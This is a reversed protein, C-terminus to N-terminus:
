STKRTVRRVDRLCRTRGSRTPLKRCAANAKRIIDTICSRAARGTLLARCARIGQRAYTPPSPKRSGGHAPSTPRINLMLQADSLTLAAGDDTYGCLLVTGPASPTVAVPITFRGAADPRISQTLVVVSGGNSQAFQVGEWRDPPCTTTLKTPLADLSFYYPFSVDQPPITGTAQIILPRGVVAATNPTLKLSSGEALAPAAPAALAVATGTALAATLTRILPRM